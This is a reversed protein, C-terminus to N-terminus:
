LKHNFCINKLFGEEGTNDSCLPKIRLMITRLRSPHFIQEAIDVRLWLDDARRHHHVEMIGQKQGLDFVQQEFVADIDPM